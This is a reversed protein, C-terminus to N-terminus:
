RIKHGLATEFAAVINETPVNAVINHCTAFVFGGNDNFTETTFKVEDIVDQVSGFPLTTQTSIGGGWFTFKDGYKEKLMKADMGKATLQVPNLCDMGMDAFDDLYTVVSGCTHYWTKWNTNKHVWDNVRKYYPKYLERFTSISMFPGHQTGFDTGSINVVCIKDGVAQRYIELNKLMTQTQMEFVEELYEPYMLQAMLFDQPFRIGKPNKIHPAGVWSMDGLGCGGLGGFIAYDTEEWLRKAEKELYRAEEDTMVGFDDAYDEQPTLNDEDYGTSRFINDFFNGNKPMMVSPAATRDGQPFALIDGKENTTYEFDGPMMVPTGDFMTWPKFNTNKGGFMNTLGWLGIVDTEFLQRLDEEIVGLMQYIEQIQIPHVDLGLDRRLRYITSAACGTQGSGGFDVPIRDTPQHNLAAHIRERKTMKKM